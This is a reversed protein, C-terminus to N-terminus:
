GNSKAQNIFSDVRESEADRIAALKQRVRHEKVEDEASKTKSADILARVEDLPTKGRAIRQIGSEADHTLESGESKAQKESQLQLLDKELEEDFTRAKDDYRFDRM